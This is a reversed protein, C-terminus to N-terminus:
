ASRTQSRRRAPAAKKVPPAAALLKRVGEQSVDLLEGADRLSLRNTRTMEAAAMVQMARLKARLATTKEALARAERIAVALAKPLRHEEEIEAKAAIKTRNEDDLSVELAERINRRAESLSRGWTHCGPVAPITVNWAGGEDPTFVAKYKMAVM